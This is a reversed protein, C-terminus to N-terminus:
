DEVKFFNRIRRWLPEKLDGRMALHSKIREIEDEADMDVGFIDLFKGEKDFFYMWISHDVVYDEDDNVTPDRNTTTYVRYKKAIDECQQPTGTLGIFRPHFEKVYRALQEVSDRWPDLSIFLPQILDEGIEKDLTTIVKSIKKLEVPCVDPCFTFGFYIVLYKGLYDSSTKVNGTHDVLTWTGGIKSKGVTKIALRQHREKKKQWFFVLLCGCVITM